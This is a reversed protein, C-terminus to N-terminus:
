NQKGVIRVNFNVAGATPSVTTVGLWGYDLHGFDFNNVTGTAVYTAYTIAPITINFPTTTLPVWDSGDESTVWTLTPTGSIVGNSSLNLTFTDQTTKVTSSVFVGVPIGLAAQAATSSIQISSVGAIVYYTANFTLPYLTAGVTQSSYYLATNGTTSTFYVGEGTRLNNGTATIGTGNFVYGSNLGGSFTGIQAGTSPNSLVLVAPTIANTSVTIAYSNAATGVVTMTASVIAGAAAAVIGTTTSSATITAALGTATAGVSTAPYWATPSFSTSSANATWCYGNICVSANNQGGSMTLAATSIVAANSTLTAYNNGVTGTVTATASVITGASAATIGITNSSAAIQTALNAAMATTNAGVNFQNISTSSTVATFQAGGVTVTVPNTGGTFAATSIATSSTSTVSYANCFTGSSICAVMVVTSSANVSASINSVSPSANIATALNVATSTSSYGQSVNGGVRFLLAGPPPGLIAIQTDLVNSSVVIQASGYSGVAGTIAVATFTGSAATTSLGVYSAVTLTATAAQGDGFTVNSSTVSTVIVQASAWNMGDTRVGTTANYAGPVALNTDVSIQGGAIAQVSPCFFLAAIVAGCVGLIKKM